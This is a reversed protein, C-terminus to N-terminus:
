LYIHLVNKKLLIFIVIASIVFEPVLYTANYAASYAYVNWGKWAYEGFFVVGSIFHFIFRGFIAVGVGTMPHKQFAGALGLAGFALPYDLLIQLPYYIEGFIAIHVLGYIVGAELGWRLGRRLAFWILPVMSGLTISGGQPLHLFPLYLKSVIYLAEALAIFVIMEAFIKTEPAKSISKNQEM